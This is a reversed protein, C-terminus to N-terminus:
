IYAWEESPYWGTLISNFPLRSGRYWRDHGGLNRVGQVVWCLGDDTCGLLHPVTGCNFCSDYHKYVWGLAHLHPCIMVPPANYSAQEDRRDILSTEEIPFRHSTAWRVHYRTTVILSDFEDLTVEM